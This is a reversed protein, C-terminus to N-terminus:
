EETPTMRKAIGAAEVWAKWNRGFAAKAHELTDAHGHHQLGPPGCTLSFHWGWRAEKNAVVSLVLKRVHGIVLSGSVVELQTGSSGRDRYILVM